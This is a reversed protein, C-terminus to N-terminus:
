FSLTAQLRVAFADNDNGGLNPMDQGSFGASPAILRRAQGDVKWVLEGTLRLNKTARYNAGVTVAQFDDSISSDDNIYDYKAFVDVKATLAYDASLALGYQQRNEDSFSAVGNIQNVEHYFFAGALAFKAFKWTADATVGWSWDDSAFGTANDYNEFYFAGGLLLGQQGADALAFNDDFQGFNGFVVFDTRSSVAILNVRDAGVATTDTNAGDSLATCVRVMKGDTYDVQVGESRGLGFFNENFGPETGVCNTDALCYSERAFPLWFKGAKVTVNKAVEYTLFAEEIGLENGGDLINNSLLVRYGVSPGAKGSFDLKTRRLHFGEARDEDNGTGFGPAGEVDNYAYRLQVIGGINLEYSGDGSKLFVRGGDTIGATAGGDALTARSNADALVEQVIQRVEQAQDATLTSEGAFAPAAAAVFAGALVTKVIQM